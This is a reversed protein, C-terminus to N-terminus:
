AINDEIVGLRADDDFGRAVGVRKESVTKIKCVYVVLFVFSLKGRM